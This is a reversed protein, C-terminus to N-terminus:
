LYTSKEGDEDRVSRQMDRMRWGFQIAQMCTRLHGKQKWTLATVIEDGERTDEGSESGEKKLVITKKTRM